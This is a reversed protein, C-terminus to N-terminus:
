SSITPLETVLLKIFVAWWCRQRWSVDWFLVASVRFVVVFLWKINNGDNNAKYGEAAMIIMATM